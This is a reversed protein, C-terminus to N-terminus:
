FACESSHLEVCFHNGNKHIFYLVLLPETFYEHSNENDWVESYEKEFIQAPLNDRLFFKKLVYGNELIYQLFEEHEQTHKQFYQLHINQMWESKLITYIDVKERSKGLIWKYETKFFEIVLGSQIDTDFFKYRTYQIIHEGSTFYVYKKGKETQIMKEISVISSLPYWPSYIKKYVQAKMYTYEYTQLLFALEQYM